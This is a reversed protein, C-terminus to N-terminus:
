SKELWSKTCIFAEMIDSDLDESNVLKTVEAFSCTHPTAFSVALFDRAMRALIPFRGGNLRWWGLIDFDEVFPLKPEHFYRSFEDDEVADVSECPRGLTDLVNYSTSPNVDGFTSASKLNSPSNEEYETLAEMIQLFVMKLCFNGDDHLKGCWHQVIDLQLIDMKFQPDLVAAITLVSTWGYDYRDLLTYTMSSAKKTVYWRSKKELQDLKRRIECLKLFYMNATLTKNGSFICNADKLVQFCEHLASAKNWEKNTLTLSKFIPDVRALGLFTKKIRVASELLEMDSDPTLPRGSRERPYDFCKRIKQLIDSALNKGVSVIDELVHVLTSISILDGGFRLSGQSELWDRIENDDEVVDAATISGHINWDLLVSKLTEIDSGGEFCKVGIIKRKLEWNDDIFHVTLCYYVNENSCRKLRNVTLSFRCPLKSFFIRLKEKEVRYVHLIDAKISNLSLIGNKIIMHAVNFHKMEQDMVRNEKIVASTSGTESLRDGNRRNQCIELHKKLKTARSNKSGVVMKCHKCVTCEKGDEGKDKVYDEWVNSVLKRRKTCPLASIEVDVNVLENDDYLPPECVTNKNKIQAIEQRRCRSSDVEDDDSPNHM